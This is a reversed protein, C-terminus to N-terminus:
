GNMPELHVHINEIFCFQLGGKTEREGDLEETVFLGTSSLGVPQRTRTRETAEIPGALINGASRFCM